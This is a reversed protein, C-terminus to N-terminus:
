GFAGMIKDANNTAVATGAKWARFRTGQLAALSASSVSVSVQPIITGPASGTRLQGRILAYGAIQSNSTVLTRSTLVDSVLHEPSHLGSPSVSALKAAQAQYRGTLSATGGFQFSFDGASAAMNGLFVSLDFDYVSNAEAFFEDQGSPFINKMGTGAGLTYTSRLDSIHIGDDQAVMGRFPGDSASTYGEGICNRAIVYSVPTPPVENFFALQMQRPSRDDFAHCGDFIVGVASNRNSDYLCIFGGTTGTPIGCNRAICGYYRNADKMTIAPSLWGAPMNVIAKTVGGVRLNENDIFQIPAENVLVCYGSTGADYLEFVVGTAGSTQGTVTDGVNIAGTQGDWEVVHFCSKEVFGAYGCDEAYGGRVQMRKQLNAAKHGWTTCHLARPNISQCDWNGGNGDGTWDIGQDMTDVTPNELIVGRNGNLPIGRSFVYEVPDGINKKWGIREVRPEIVRLNSCQTINIGQVQDDGSRPSSTFTSIVGFIDHVYPRYM